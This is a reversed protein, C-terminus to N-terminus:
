DVVSIFSETLNKEKLSLKTTATQNSNLSGLRVNIKGIIFKCMIKKDQCKKQNKKTNKM